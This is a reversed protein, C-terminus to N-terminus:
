QEQGRHQNTIHGHKNWPVIVQYYYSSLKVGFEMAEVQNLKYDTRPTFYHENENWMRSEIIERAVENGSLMRRKPNRARTVPADTIQVGAPNGPGLVEYATVEFRVPDFNVADVPDYVCGQTALDVFAGTFKIGCRCDKDTTTPPVPCGSGNVTWGECPCVTWVHGKYPVPDVFKAVGFTDCGDEMLNDSYQSLTASFQCTGTTKLAVTGSVITPDNAYAAQIKTLESSATGGCDPIEMQMCLDRTIKYKTGASVWATTVPTTLTCKPQTTVGTDEILTEAVAGPDTWTTPVQVLYVSVSGDFLIKAAATATPIKTQVQTLQAGSTLDSGDNDITVKLVKKATVATYGSPCTTCDPIILDSQSYAAPASASALQWMQYTSLSGVRSIRTVVNSYQNQVRALALGDGEDCLTLNYGTFNTKTPATEAPCCSQVTEALVYPAVWSANLKAVLSDVVTECLNPATCDDGCEPCDKITVEVQDSIGKPWVMSIAPSPLLQVNVMYTRGCKFNLSNCDNLGDYGLYTVQATETRQPKAIRAPLLSKGYIKDSKFSITRNTNILSAIKPHSTVKQNQNPSGIAFQINPSKTFGGLTQCRDYDLLTLEFPKLKSTDNATANFSKVIWSKRLTFPFAM